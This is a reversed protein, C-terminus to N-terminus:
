KSNKYKSYAMKITADVVNCDYSKVMEDLENYPCMCKHHKRVCDNETGYLYGMLKHAAIWREHEVMAITQLLQADAESCQYNTTGQERSCAYEYFREIREPSANDDLGMLRMKTRSHLSASINQSIRRNIDYIAHYRLMGKQKMLRDIEQNGFNLKWQEAASLSSAEYIKNFEQAERLTTDSLITNCCYLDKKKGYLQLEIKVDEISNNLNDAVEIMRKENSNDYCKVLIKLTSDNSTRSRLAYKFLNVAFSLAVADNNLAVVVYNLENIIAKINGWFEESDVSAKILTLENESIAPMKLKVFGEIKHMNEDIAYCKFRTKTKNPGIFASHEYLFKFAEQGTSGFGVILSTFPSNVVGTENDFKDCNNPLAESNQKITTISLYASDIIKIRMRQSTSDYQTYHEFVENNADRRAHVYIVPRNNIMSRLTKDQQLNLAGAINLAEDNSLFYFYSKSSKKLIEGIDELNSLGFVDTEEVCKIAGPGNYCHAVLADIADLRAIESNKITITNTIHSLTAKKNANDEKEKDNDIFIITDTSSNKRIDEALLCSAENVGWFLHVVKGKACFWKHILIRLSSEIKYGIMKFIFLFTIFAAVFHLASFISMYLADSQLEKAVRALDNSVVFMKFASIIARPVVSIWNLQSQYFGVMYVVVGLLWIGSSVLLLNNSLVDLIRFSKRNLLFWGSLIIVLTLILLWSGIIEFNVIMSNGWLEASNSFSDVGFVKRLFELM